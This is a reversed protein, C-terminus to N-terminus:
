RMMQNFLIVYDDKNMPRPNDVNSGNVYSKYALEEIDEAKVGFSTFSPLNVDAALQKVAEVAQRAGKEISDSTIGMALAIRAYREQCYDMNYEKVAPLVVANCVGHATDYKGGLAEAICHVSGVNSHSFAIGALVSGVLM